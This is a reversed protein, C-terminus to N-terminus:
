DRPKQTPIDKESEQENKLCFKCYEGCGYTWYGTILATITDKKSNFFLTVTEPKNMGNLSMSMRYVKKQKNEFFTKKSFLFSDLKYDLTDKKYYESNIDVKNYAHARYYLRSRKGYFYILTGNEAEKLLITYPENCDISEWRKSYELSKVEGRYLSKKSLVCSVLCASIFFLLLTEKKM